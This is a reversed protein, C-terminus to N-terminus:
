VASCNYMEFQWNKSWWYDGLNTKFMVSNIEFHEQCMFSDGIGEVEEFDKCFPEKYPFWLGPIYLRLVYDYFPFVLDDTLPQAAESLIVAIIAGFVFSFFIAAGIIVFTAEVGIEVHPLRLKETM